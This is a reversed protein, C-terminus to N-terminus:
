PGSAAQLAQRYGALFFARLEPPQPMLVLPDAAPTTFKALRGITERADAHRGLHAYSAALYYYPTV